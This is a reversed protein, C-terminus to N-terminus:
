SVWRIFMVFGLGIQRRVAATQKFRLREGPQEQPLADLIRGHKNQKFRNCIIKMVERSVSEDLQKGIKLFPDIQRKHFHDTFADTEFLRLFCSIQYKLVIISYLSKICSSIFIVGPQVALPRVIM